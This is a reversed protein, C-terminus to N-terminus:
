LLQLVQAPAGPHAIASSGGRERVPVAPLGVQDSRSRSSAPPSRAIASLRVPLLPHDSRLEVVVFVAAALMGGGLLVLTIPSLWGREPAEILGGVVLGIALASILAGGIDMRPREREHSEPVALAAAALAAGAVTLAIFISKWSSGQLALGSGLPGVLAGASVVGAWIGVARVL